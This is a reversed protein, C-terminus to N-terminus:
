GFLGVHNVWPWFKLGETASAAEFVGDNMVDEEMGMPANLNERERENSTFHCPTEVDVDRVKRFRDVNSLNLGRVWCVPFHRTGLAFLLETRGMYGVLTRFGDASVIPFGKVDSAFLM